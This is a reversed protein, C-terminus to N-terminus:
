CKEMQEEKNIIACYLLCRHLVFSALFLLAFDSECFHPLDGLLKVLACTFINVLAQLAINPCLDAFSRMLLSISSGWFPFFLIPLIHIRWQNM